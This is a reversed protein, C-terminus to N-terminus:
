IVEKNNMPFATYTRKKASDWSDESVITSKFWVMDIMNITRHTGTLPILAFQIDTHMHTYIYEQM